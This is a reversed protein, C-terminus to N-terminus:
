TSAKFELQDGSLLWIAKEPRGAPVDAFNLSHSTEESPPSAAGYGGPISDPFSVIQDLSPALIRSPWSPIRIRCTLVPASSDTAPLSLNNEGRQDGSSFCM